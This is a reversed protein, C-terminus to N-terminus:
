FFTKFHVIFCFMKKKRHQVGFNLFFVCNDDYSFTIKLQNETSLADKVVSIKLSRSFIPKKDGSKEHWYPLSAIESYYKCYLIINLFIELFYYFLFSYFLVSILKFFYKKM